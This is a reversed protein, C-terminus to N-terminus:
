RNEYEILAKIIIERAELHTPDNRLHILIKQRKAVTPQDEFMFDGLRHFVVDIVERPLSNIFKNSKDVKGYKLRILTDTETKM